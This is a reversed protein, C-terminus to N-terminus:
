QGKGPASDERRATFRTTYGSAGITHTTETVFYKGSFRAGIGSINLERGARLDPLGVTSGTAVVMEKQRDSLIAVARDEAQKQTFIPENVVIEERPEGRKLYEHLDKNNKVRKDDITVTAVIPQKTRRNWGHVTVSKVQNATTLTPKFEILSKGWALEFTVDRLAAQLSPGFYLRQETGSSNKKAVERVVVVYGRVRARLLLFEIDFMNDQAVYPIASEAQKSAPDTDVPLPFRKKGTSPDTLTALSEAIESDKKDTWSYTFQKPRLKHLVNLARVTLTPSGSSPFNPELTTFVGTMMEVLHGVYGMRLVVDPGSPDFVHHRKEEDTKADLSATTESGVYKFSRTAPDWNNVTFEFSDIQKINDRYTIQEIDRLVEASVSNGGLRLEFQPVYFAGQNLSEQALTLTAM